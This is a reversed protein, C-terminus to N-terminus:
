SAPQVARRASNGFVRLGVLPLALAVCALGLMMAGGALPEPGPQNEPLLMQIEEAAEIKGHFM